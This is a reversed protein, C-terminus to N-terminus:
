ARLCESMELTSVFLRARVSVSSYVYDVSGKYVTSCSLVEWAGLSSNLCCSYIGPSAECVQVKPQMLGTDPSAWLGAEQGLAPEATRVKLLCQQSSTM